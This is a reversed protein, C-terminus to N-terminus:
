ESTGQSREPRRSDRRTNYHALARLSRTIRKFLERKTAPPLVTQAWPYMERDEHAGHEHLTEILFDIAELRFARLEADIGLRYLQRRLEEHTVRIAAADAPAHRAYAPLIFDEEAKMHELVAHELNRYRAIVGLPDDIFASARLAKCAADIKEHHEPLLLRPGAATTQDLTTPNM